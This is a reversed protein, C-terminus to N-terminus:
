LIKKAPEYLLVVMKGIFILSLEHNGTQQSLNSQNTSFDVIQLSEKNLLHDPRRGPAPLKLRWENEM